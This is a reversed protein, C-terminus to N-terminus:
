GDPRGDVGDRGRDREAGPEREETQLPADELRDGRGGGDADDDAPQLARQWLQVDWWRGLKYGAERLIGAPRFGLGRLLGESAPNPMAVVGVVSRYGAARLRDLMAEGVERGVGRLRAREAVYVSMEATWRYAARDRFVGASAFGDIGDESERVLWPIPAADMRRRLEQKSPPEVEFSIHTAVVLPAYISRIAPVDGPTAPRIGTM